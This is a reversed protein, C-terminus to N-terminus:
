LSPGTVVRRSSPSCGQESAWGNLEKRGFSPLPEVARLLMCLRAPVAKVIVTTVIVTIIIVIFISIIIVIVVVVIIIIGVIVSQLEHHAPYTCPLEQREM